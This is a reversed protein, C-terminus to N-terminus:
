WLDIGWIAFDQAARDVDCQGGSRIRTISTKM